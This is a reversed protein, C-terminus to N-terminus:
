VSIFLIIKVGLKGSQDIEFVMSSVEKLADFLHKEQSTIKYKIIRSM